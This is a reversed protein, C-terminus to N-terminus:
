QNEEYLVRHLRQYIDLQYVKRNNRTPNVRNSLFVLVLQQDPDAWTFAGTYGSHGFSSESAKPAPFGNKKNTLRPKDFGLGRRNGEKRYQYRTFEQLTEQKLYQEGGYSGHNMYLTMLKALDNASGFLGANGSVGGMMAAGEDHVWGHIQENRFFTDRETPVIDALPFTHAPNFTLTYAGLRHYFHHKLYQDFPLGGLQQTLQPLLYFLLGSYVYGPDKNLPSKLIAKYMKQQFDRHQWLHANIRIPYNASSDRQFTKPRFQYDNTRAPNWKSQWPYRSHGKLTGTWYPIWPRLRAQHAMMERFTLASKNSRKFDPLYQSLTADLELQGEDVLKMAAATGASIKTVSAFDYLDHLQVPRLSDYSHYGYAKHVVIQGKKAVLLQAGPYAQQMLGEEVIADLKGMLKESDWGVQEPLRYGMRLGGPSDMGAGKPFHENVTVPLRGSAGVAGFILQASLREAVENGQYAMILGAAEELGKFRDLLYPNRFFTLISNRQTALESILGQVSPSMDMRNYARKGLQHVGVIVLDYGALQQQIRKVATPNAKHPLTFPTIQTYKALTEQFPTPSSSISLAAIRLTDLRQLPILQEENRLLTLSAETLTSHLARAQPPNLKHHLETLDVKHPVQQFAWAKTTLIKRCREDIIAQSIRGSEVAKQIADLAKPVDESYLMVDNGALIARIEAEGTPYHKTLGKMNMADTFILGEFQLQDKLIGTVIPPSLTSPLHPTKDWAPISLHAVMTSGLGRQILQKFPYLELNELRQPSHAIVPLDVHSDTGTDGHGPFHKGTALIGHDQMGQMYALGKKTVDMKDEGFSRYSIVPNNPNNNVDIVPAFNVHMGLLKFQRAIEAGMEYILSDDQVAGLAMQFPFSITSDLRMGIGWEADMAVMLPVKSLSQYHNHLIGQRGPGGQFFILGGIGQQEILRSIEYTHSPGRNSYAAVMFLQAIRESPSLTMIVSDAWQTYAKEQLYPVSSPPQASLSPSTAM